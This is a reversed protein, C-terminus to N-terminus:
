KNFHVEFQSHLEAVFDWQIVDTYSQYVKEDTYNGIILKKGDFNIPQYLTDVAQGDECVLESETTSTDFKHADRLYHKDYGGFILLDTENIQVM